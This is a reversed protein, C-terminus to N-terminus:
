NLRMEYGKASRGASSQITSVLWSLCSCHSELWAASSHPHHCLGDPLWGIACSSHRERKEHDHGVEKDDVEEIKDM